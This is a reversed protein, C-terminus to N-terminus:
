HFSTLDKHNYEQLPYCLGLKDEEEKKEIGLQWSAPVDEAV